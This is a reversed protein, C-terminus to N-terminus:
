AHRQGFILAAFVILGVNTILVAYTRWDEWPEFIAHTGVVRGILWIEAVCFAIAGVALIALFGITSAGGFRNAVLAAAINPPVLLLAASGALFAYLAANPFGYIPHITRGEATALSAVLAAGMIVMVPFSYAYKLPLHM